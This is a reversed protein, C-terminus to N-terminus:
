LSSLQSSLWQGQSQLKSLALEMAVFRSIMAEQKRSLRANVNDILEDKNDIQDSLSNIKNAVYGDISDTINYLAREFLEAVGVTFKINGVNGTTSGTYNISLGAINAANKVGTLTQGKGTAIEGNITGAVDQGNNVTVPSGAWLSSNITFSNGSGYNNSSLVLHGSGDDSAGITMAARGEQGDGNTTLVTGFISTGASEFAFTLESSGEEDDTLVLRGNIDISASIDNGFASEIETLLGQITDTSTSEITYSGSIASGDRATGTFSITNGDSLTAGDIAAWTTSSTVAAGGAQVNNNGVLKETYVTELESNIATTIDSITMDSTLNIVAKQDGQSISLTQDSGLTGSIASSPDSISKTAAQTINVAYNGAKSQNTSYVYEISGSTSSGNVSFLKQIDSFNSELYDGLEESDISLQNKSDLHIGALGMISFKSSVGWVPDGLLSSLDSKISSLTGDGFLVAQSDENEENYTQQKNIYSSVENYADVFTKIKKEIASTDREINLTITTSEDEGTLKFTVGTLVDDIINDESTVEIGDLLFSADKGEVIENVVDESNTWGMLGSIDTASGNEISIGKAGTEDSTLNLRYDTDSYRILSATVGADANNIKNRLDDLGDTVSVAIIKDNIIINGNFESGLDNTGSSFSASGIKQATAINNIIISYSGKVASSDTSVSLLDEADIDVNDSTMSSSFANFKDPKSLADAATKLSLLQTNFSRWETLQTEYKTKQKELLDVPRKEIAMLQDVMSRWDFGSSLGSVQNTSAM